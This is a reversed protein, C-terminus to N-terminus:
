LRFSRLRGTHFRFRLLSGPHNRRRAAPRCLGVATIVVTAQALPACRHRARACANARESHCRSVSIGRFPPTIRRDELVASQGTGPGGITQSLPGLTGLLLPADRLGSSIGSRCEEPSRRRAAHSGPTRDRRAARVRCCGACQLRSLLTANLCCHLSARWSGTGAPAGARFSFLFDQTGTDRRELPHHIPSISRASARRFLPTNALCRRERERTEGVGRGRVGQPCFSSRYHRCPFYQSRVPAAVFYLGISYTRLGLKSGGEALHAM